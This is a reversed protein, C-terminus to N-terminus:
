GGGLMAKALVVCLTVKRGTSVLLKDTLLEALAVIVVEQWVAYLGFGLV